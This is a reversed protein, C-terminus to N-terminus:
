PALPLDMSSFSLMLSSSVTLSSWNILIMELSSLSSLFFHYENIMLFLITSPLNSLFTFNFCSSYNLMKADTSSTPLHTTSNEKWNLCKDTNSSSYRRYNKQLTSSTWRGSVTTSTKPYKATSKSAAFPTM